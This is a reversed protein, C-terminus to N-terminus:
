QMFDVECFIKLSFIRYSIIYGYIIRCGLPVLHGKSIGELLLLTLFLPPGCPLPSPILGKEGTAHSEMGASSPSTPSLAGMWPGPPTVRVVQRGELRTNRLSVLCAQMVSSFSLIEKKKCAAPTLCRLKKLLGEALVDDM